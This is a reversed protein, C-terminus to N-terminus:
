GHEAQSEARRASLHRYLSPLVRLDKPRGATEKSQIVDALDAVFRGTAAYTAANWTQGTFAPPSDLADTTAPAPSSVEARDKMYEIKM